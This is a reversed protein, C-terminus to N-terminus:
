AVDVEEVTVTTDDITVKFRTGDQCITAYEYANGSGSGAEGSWFFYYWDPEMGSASGPHLYVISEEPVDIALNAEVAPRWESTGSRGDEKEVFTTEGDVLVPVVEVWDYHHNFDEWETHNSGWGGLPGSGTGNGTIKAPFPRLRDDRWNTGTPSQNVVMGPPTTVNFQGMLLRATEGSAGRRPIRPLPM